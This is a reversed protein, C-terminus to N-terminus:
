SRRTKRTIWDALGDIADLPLPMVVTRSRENSIASLVNLYRLHMAQPQESLTEAAELFQRAAQEEGAADIVKARRSREAEAQRAMVRLISQDLDIQRIEVSNVAIGWAATQEQLIQQIEANLRTREALMADLNNKGLVARLTTQAFQNTAAEFDEVRIIASEAEVVRFYVIANVRVSVNDNTIVDQSPVDIVRTRLDVRVMQQILPIMIILGPGMTGTYWGLTFMVGREYERFVKLAAALFVVIAGVAIIILTVHNAM